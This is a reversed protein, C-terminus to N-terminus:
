IWNIFRWDNKRDFYLVGKMIRKFDKLGRLIEKINLKGYIKLVVLINKGWNDSLIEQLLNLWLEEESMFRMKDVFGESIMGLIIFYDDTIIFNGKALIQRM